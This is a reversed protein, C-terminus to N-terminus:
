MGTVSLLVVLAYIISFVGIVIGIIALIKGNENRRACNTLGIVSIITGAIGVLGWFNLLLSICSVVLGVICMINYQAKRVTSYHNTSNNPNSSYVANKASDNPQVAGCEPCFKSGDAIQKGCKVCFM